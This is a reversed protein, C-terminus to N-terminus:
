FIRLTYFTRLCSRPNGEQTVRRSSRSCTPCEMVSSQEGREAWVPGLSSAVSIRVSLLPRQTRPESSRCGCSCRGGAWSFVEGCSATRVPVCWWRGVENQSYPHVFTPGLLTGLALATEFCGSQTCLVRALSAEKVM